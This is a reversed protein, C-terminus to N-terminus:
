QSSRFVTVSDPDIQLIKCYDPLQSVILKYRLTTDEIEFNELEIKVNEEDFKDLSRLPIALKILAYTTLAYLSDEDSNIIRRKFLKEAYQDIEINVRAQKPMIRVDSKKDVDKLDLLQDVNDSMEKKLHDKFTWQKINALKSSPGYVTISDPSLHIEGIISYGSKLSIDGKLVIPVKKITPDLLKISLSSPLISIIEYKESVHKEVTNYLSIESITQSNDESLRLEINENFQNSTLLNWTKSKLKVVINEENNKGLLKQEPIIYNIGINFTQINTKSIQMSLWLLTSIFLFVLFRYDFSKILYKFTKILNFKSM